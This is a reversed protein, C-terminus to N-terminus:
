LSRAFPPTIVRLSAGDDSDHEGIPVQGRGALSRPGSATENVCRARCPGAKCRVGLEPSQDFTADTGCAWEPCGRHSASPGDGRWATRTAQAACCAEAQHLVTDIRLHSSTHSSKERTHSINTTSTTLKQHAFTSFPSVGNYISASKFSLACRVRAQEHPLERM